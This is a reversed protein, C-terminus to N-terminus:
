YRKWTSKQKPEEFRGRAGNFPTQQPALAPQQRPAQVQAAPASKPQGNTDLGTEDPIDRFEQNEDDEDWLSM